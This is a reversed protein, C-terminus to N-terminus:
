NPGETLPKDSIPTLRHRGTANRASGAQTKFRGAFGRLPIDAHLGILELDPQTAIRRIMESGVNGTAVQFVRVPASM